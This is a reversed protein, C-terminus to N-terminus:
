KYERLHLWKTAIWKEGAIVPAGGHLTLPDVNEGSTCNYFLVANRRTPKVKINVRPFITEGGEEPTHLYMILTAVRQGGREYAAAGGVTNVDFYDYHPLYEGGKQYRLVQLAEGNEVPLNVLNAIRNEIEEVVSDKRFDTLYCGDSTRGSIVKRGKTQYDIVTSRELRPLALSMLYDCEEDSLFNYIYTIKPSLSLTKFRPEEFGNISSSTIGVVCLFIIKFLLRHM